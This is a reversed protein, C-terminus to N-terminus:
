FNRQVFLALALLETKFTGLITGLFGLFILLALFLKSFFAVFLSGLLTCSFTNFITWISKFTGLFSCFSKKEYFLTRFFWKLYMQLWSSFLASAFIPLNRHKGGHGGSARSAVPTVCNLYFTQLVQACINAVSVFNDRKWCKDLEEEERLRPELSYRLVSNLPHIFWFSIYTM